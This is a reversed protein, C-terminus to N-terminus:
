NHPTCVWLLGPPLAVPPPLQAAPSCLFPLSQLLQSLSVCSQFTALRLHAKKLDEQVQALRRDVDHKFRDLSQYIPMSYAIALQRRKEARSLLEEKKKRAAVEIECELSEGEREVAEISQSVHAQAAAIDTQDTRLRAIHASLAARLYTRAEATDDIDFYDHRRHAKVCKVCLFDSCSCCYFEEDKLHLGDSCTGGLENGTSKTYAM